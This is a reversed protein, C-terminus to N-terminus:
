RVPALSLLGLGLAKAHGLGGQLASRLAAPDTVRLEGEFTAASLTVQGGGKRARLRESHTIEFREPVFGCRQGQALLWEAQAGASYLGYRKPKHGRPKGEAPMQKTITPNARLRFRYIEGPRTLATLREHNFATVQFTDLYGPHQALIRSWDPSAHSQVLLKPPREGDLRWLLREAPSLNEGEAAFAFTLTRHLDYPNRLDTQVQRHRANLIVRSLHM